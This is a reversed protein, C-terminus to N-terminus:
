STASRPPYRALVNRVYGCYTTAPPRTSRRRRGANGYVSLVIRMGPEGRRRGQRAAAADARPAADARADVHLTFRFASAGLRAGARGGGAGVAEAPGGLLRRLVGSESATRAAPTVFLAVAVAATLVIRVLM